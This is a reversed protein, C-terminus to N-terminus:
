AATSPSRSATATAGSARSLARLVGRPVQRRRSRELLRDADVPVADHLRARGARRAGAAREDDFVDVTWASAAASSRAAGCRCRRCRRARLLSVIDTGGSISSLCCTTRSRVPLRLRLEGARAPQRDLVDHAASSLEYDKRPVLAIKKLADIYKASTGFHTMREADAFDWLVRGATSSRRATTSCCRRAAVRPRVRALEVDDLRLDHLLVARDGPKVDGHLRHEKLHQLLTGGAGHVICKPVGTTGSSYLIYLPHDFPLRAYDIPGARVARRCDDWPSARRADGALEDPRRAASTRCSSSASSRRCRARRDGRGQRAIPSRSATTATATSPSRARAARDPRLPRARGARRLGALVVVLDRRAVRRASCRSSRRPCTRCTARRRPRGAAVGHATLAARRARRRAHLERTRCGRAAGQGRGLVGARRRRRRRARRELLNEAFNLRADPFWRAGPM